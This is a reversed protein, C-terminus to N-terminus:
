IKGHILNSLSINKNKRRLDIEDTLNFISSPRYPDSKESNKFNM